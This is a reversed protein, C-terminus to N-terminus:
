RAASGVAATERQTPRRTLNAQSLSGGISSASAESASPSPVNAVVSGPSQDPLPVLTGQGASLAQAQVRSGAMLLYGALALGIARQLKLAGM